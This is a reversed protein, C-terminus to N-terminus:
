NKGLSVTRKRKSFRRACQRGINKIADSCQTARHAREPKERRDELASRNWCDSPPHTQAVIPDTSQNAPRGKRCSPRTRGAPSLGPQGPGCPWSLRHPLAQGCPKRPCPRLPGARARWDKYSIPFHNVGIVFTGLARAQLVWKGGNGFVLTCESNCQLKPSPLPPINGSGRLTLAPRFLTKGNVKGPPGKKLEPRPANRFYSRPTLGTQHRGSKVRLLRFYAATAMSRKPYMLPVRHPLKGFFPFTQMNVAPLSLGLQRM